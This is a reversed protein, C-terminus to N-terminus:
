ESSNNGLIIDVIRVADAITIEGDDNADGKLAKFDVEKTAVESDEYGDKKAYVNIRYSPTLNSLLINNGTMAKEGSITISTVFEVGETECSYTLTGNAFAIIPTACKEVIINLTGPVYSIDYNQAEAGSVTIDYTGTTNSDIALCSITPQTTLVSETENNQFGSYTVDFTPMADGINITYSNAAITLPAATITLTGNVYHDNTNAVSGKSIVIPYTGVPSTATATCSIDPTGVLAAGASTYEFAPNSEGYHRTYSNATVVVGGMEVIQVFDEWVPAEEYDAKTGAPVLLSVNGLNVGDFVNYTIVIPFNWGVTISTLGSCSRFAYNGISTVSSPINVSTLGSCGSFAYSGISTVFSPINVSTLGFCGSFAYESISTVSGPIVTSNCGRILTYTSTEIIANCNDRSDYVSNNADVVISTLGSCESFANRGISTVSSPITVSTLGSCNYFAYSGISTVFSPIDVSTLGFCGSFASDSISTVSSPIVSSSCGKILTNPSTEIIANCNERSDYVSNNADVVISTLGSCGSFAYSGISTVSSPIDVSTLSSCGRFAYSGINTVSNGITVDKLSSCGKFAEDGILRVYNPIKISTLSSCDAFALEDIYFVSNPITVSTLNSSNWFASKSISTVTYTTSNYTVNKPIVVDGSYSSSNDNNATVEVESNNISNYYITVGDSNAVAFRDANARVGMMSMLMTIFFLRYIKM